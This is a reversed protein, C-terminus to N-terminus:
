QSQEDKDRELNRAPRHSNGTIMVHYIDDIRGHVESVSAKIEELQDNIENKSMHSKAIKDWREFQRKGFLGVLGLLGVTILMWAEVIGNLFADSLGKVVDAITNKDAM